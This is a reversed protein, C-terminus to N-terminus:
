RPTDDMLILHDLCIITSANETSMGVKMRGCVVAALTDAFSHIILPHWSMFTCPNDCVLRILRSLFLTDYSTSFAKVTKQSGDRTEDTGECGYIMGFQILRLSSMLRCLSSCLFERVSRWIEYVELIFYSCCCKENNMQKEWRRSSTKRM